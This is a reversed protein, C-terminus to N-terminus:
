KEVDTRWEVLLLNRLSLPREMGIIANVLLLHHAIMGSEERRSLPAKGSIANVM